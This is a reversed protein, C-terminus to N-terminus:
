KLMSEIPFSIDNGVLREIYITIVLLRDQRTHVQFM